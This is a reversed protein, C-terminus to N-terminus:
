HWFSFVTQLVDNTHVGPMSQDNKSTPISTELLEFRDSLEISVRSSSGISLLGLTIMQRSFTNGISTLPRIDFNVRKLPSFAPM